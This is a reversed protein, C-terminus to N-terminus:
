LSAKLNKLFTQHDIAFNGTVTQGAPVDKTVVAGLSVRAGDGIRIRNSITANVGIWVEEGIQVNGPIKAGAAIFSRAGLKSNHGVYVMVDCKVGSGIYTIDGPFLGRAIACSACLEVHDGIEVVGCDALTISREQYRAPSFSKTGVVTGACIRVHRGITVHEQIVAGPEVVTGEGIRVNYPAVWAQPSIDCGPAIVTPVQPVPIQGALYNYAQYFAFKPADSVLIGRIRAPLKEVMAEPCIVAAIATRDLTPLFKEKELFTVADPGQASTCLQAPGIECDQLVRVVDTDIHKALQSLRLTIWAGEECVPATISM